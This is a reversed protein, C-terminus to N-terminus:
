PGPKSRLSEAERLLEELQDAVGLSPAWKRLHALDLKAGQVVAVNLADKVQRDSPTLNNWELKTLIVDEPSAIPVSYGHYTGLQRRKLEEVSFPRDKRLILDAKWGEDFDVVNFLSRRRLAERATQPDAYYQDGLLALFRELQEATPDIVLDVDNTARPQGHYSSGHSGALMFPIGATELLQAMRKLFDDQNM